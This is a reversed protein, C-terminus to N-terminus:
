DKNIQAMIWEVDKSKVNPVNRGYKDKYRQKLKDLDFINELKNDVEKPEEIKTKKSKKEVKSIDKKDEDIEELEKMEKPEEIKKSLSLLYKNRLKEVEEMDIYDIWKDNKKYIQKREEETWPIRYAKVLWRNIMRNWDPESGYTIQVKKPEQIEM